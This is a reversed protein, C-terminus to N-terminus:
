KVTKKGKTEAVASREKATSDGKKEAKLVDDALSPFHKAATLIAGELFSSM